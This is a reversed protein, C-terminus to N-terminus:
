RGKFTGVFIVTAISLGMAFMSAAITMVQWGTFIPDSM